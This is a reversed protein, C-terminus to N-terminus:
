YKNYRKGISFNLYFTFIFNQAPNFAMIPIAKPFVEAVGGVELARIKSNLNGFEFNLGGKVFVGPYIKIENFGNSFPARGIIYEESHYPNDPNYKEVKTYTITEDWFVLYVPKAFALSFGGMYLVRLEIGGWYPKRNLLKKFGYGARLIYVNNLKGYVFSKANTYYPNVMRVQKPHKMSVVEIEFIRSNFFTKNIGTRFNLGMGLNHLTIGATMEKKLLVKDAISDYGDPEDEQAYAFRIGILVFVCSFLFILSITKM